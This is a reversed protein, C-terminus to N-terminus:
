WSYAIPRQGASVLGDLTRAFMMAVTTAWKVLARPLGARELATSLRSTWWFDRPSASASTLDTKAHSTDVQVLDAGGRWGWAEALAWVSAIPNATKQLDGAYPTRAAARFDSQLTSHASPQPGMEVGFLVVFLAVWLLALRAAM